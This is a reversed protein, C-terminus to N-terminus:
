KYDYYERAADLLEQFKEFGERNIERHFEQYDDKTARKGMEKTAKDLAEHAQKNKPNNAYPKNKDRANNQYTPRKDDDYEDDDNPPTAGTGSNDNSSVSADDDPGNDSSNNSNQSLISGNLKGDDQRDATLAAVAAMAVAVVGLTAWGPPGLAGLLGDGVCGAVCHGNPDSRILRIMGLMPM